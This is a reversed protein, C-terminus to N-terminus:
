IFHWCQLFFQLVAFWCLKTLLIVYISAEKSFLWDKKAMASNTRKAVNLPRSTESWTSFDMNRRAPDSYFSKVELNGLREPKYRTADHNRPWLFNQRELIWCITPNDPYWGSVFLSFIRKWLQSLEFTLISDKRSASTQLHRKLQVKNTGRKRERKREREEKWTQWRIWRTRSKLAKKMIETQKGFLLQGDLKGGFFVRTAACPKFTKNWM